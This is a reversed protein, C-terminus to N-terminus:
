HAPHSLAVPVPTVSKLEELATLVSQWRGQDKKTLIPASLDSYFQLINDRLQPSTQSFKHESLQM